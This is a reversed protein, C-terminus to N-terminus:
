YVLKTVLNCSKEPSIKSIGFDKYMKYLINGKTKVNKAFQRRLNTVLKFYITFVPMCPCLFQALQAFVALFSAFQLWKCGLSDLAKAPSGQVGHFGSIKAPVGCLSPLRVRFNLDKKKQRAGWSIWLNEGPGWVIAAVGEMFNLDKKKQRAGWSIWLNEGPGRVIAAVGEM